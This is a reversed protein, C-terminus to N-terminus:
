MLDKFSKGSIKSKVWIVTEEFGLPIRPPKSAAYEELATLFDVLKPKMVTQWLRSSAHSELYCEALIALHTLAIREFDPSGANKKLNNRVTVVFRELADFHGLELYSINRLINCFLQVDRRQESKGYQLLIDCHILTKEYQGLAFFTLIIHYRISFLRSKNIKFAYKKLGKEIAPVLKAAEEPQGRNLLLLQRLFFLNQFIEAEDDSNAPRLQELANLHQECTDFDGAMICFNLYNSLHVIYQRPREVKIHCYQESEWLEVVRAFLPLAARFGLRLYALTAHAHHFYMKSLFTQSEGPNELLLLANLAALEEPKPGRATRFLTLARYSLAFLRHEEELLAAEAEIDQLNEQLKEAYHRTDGQNRFYVLLQLAEMALSHYEYKLATTYAEEATDEAWDFLGRRGLVEANKLLVRIADEQNTEEQMLRLSKFLMQALQYRIVHFQHEQVGKRKMRVILAEEDLTFVPEQHADRAISGEMLQFLHMYQQANGEQRAVQM